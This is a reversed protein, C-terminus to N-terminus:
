DGKWVSIILACCVCAPLAAEPHERLCSPHPECVAEAWHERQSLSISCVSSCEMFVTHSVCVCLLARGHTGGAHLAEWLQTHMLSHPFVNGCVTRLSCLFAFFGHACLRVCITHFLWTGHLLVSVSFLTNLWASIRAAICLHLLLRKCQRM